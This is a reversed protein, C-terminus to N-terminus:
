KALDQPPCQLKNQIIRMKNSAAPLAVFKDNKEEELEMM